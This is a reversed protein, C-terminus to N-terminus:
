STNIAISIATHWTEDRNIIPMDSGSDELSYTHGYNVPQRQRQRLMRVYNQNKREHWMETSISSKKNGKEDRTNM